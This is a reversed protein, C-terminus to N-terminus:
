REQAREEGAVGLDVPQEDRDQEHGRESLRDGPDDEHEVADQDARAVAAVERPGTDADEDEMGGGGEEGGEGRRLTGIALVDDVQAAEATQEVATTLVPHPSMELFARYGADLAYGTADAFRNVQEQTVEVWDSYGLHQGVLGQVGEIGAVTTQAM